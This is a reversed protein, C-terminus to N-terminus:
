YKTNLRFLLFMLLGSVGLAYLNAFNKNKVNFRSGVFPEACGKRSPYSGSSNKIPLKGGFTCPDMQLIDGNAVYRTVRGTKQNKSNIEPLSIPTCSPNSGQMFGAMMSLPNMAAADGIAGPVLGRLSKFNSGMASSLFPISGNPVNDIYIYRDQSSGNSAKCSGGTKLFFKNGLPRDGAKNAAGTGEVLLKTYNILGAVDAGLTEMTGKDSMGLEEPTNIFEYYKYDPGLLEQQVKSFDGALSSFFSSM